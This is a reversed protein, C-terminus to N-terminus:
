QLQNVLNTMIAFSDYQKIAQYDPEEEENLWGVRQELLDKQDLAIEEVTMNINKLSVHGLNDRVSLSANFVGAETPIGTFFIKNDDIEADVGFPLGTDTLKYPKEGGEIHGEPYEQEIWQDVSLVMEEDIVIGLPKSVEEITAVVSEKPEEQEPAKIMFFALYVGAGVVIAIVLILKLADKM